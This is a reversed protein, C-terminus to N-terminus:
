LLQSICHHPINTKRQQKTVRFVQDNRVNHIRFYVPRYRHGSFLFIFFYFLTTASPATACHQCARRIFMASGLRTTKLPSNAYPKRHPGPAPDALSHSSHVGHQQVGEAEEECDGESLYPDILLQTLLLTHRTYEMNNSGKQKRRM